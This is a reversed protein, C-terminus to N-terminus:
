LLLVQPTPWEGGFTGMYKVCLGDTKQMHHMSINTYHQRPATPVEVPSVAVSSSGPNSEVKPEAKPVVKPEAKPVVKPEAKPEGKVPEAKPEAEV